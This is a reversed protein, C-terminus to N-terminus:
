LAAEVSPLSLVFEEEQEDTMRALTDAGECGCSFPIVEGKLRKREQIVVLHFRREDLGGSTGIVTQRGFRSAFHHRLVAFRGFNM